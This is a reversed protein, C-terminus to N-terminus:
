FHKQTESKIREIKPIRTNKTATQKAIFTSFPNANMQIEANKNANM